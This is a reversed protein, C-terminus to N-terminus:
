TLTAGQKPVLPHPLFCACPGGQEFKGHNRSFNSFNIVVSSTYSVRLGGGHGRVVNNSLTCNTISMESEQCHIAGGM